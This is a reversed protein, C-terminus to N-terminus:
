KPVTIKSNKVIDSYWENLILNIKSQILANKTIPSKQKLANELEYNWLKACSSILMKVKVAAIQKRRMTEYEKATMQVSNLFAHYKRINFINNNEFEVSNRLNNRLEEDTVTIGYLKSQQYLIEDQVLSYIIRAKLEKLDEDSLQQNNAMQRFDTYAVLNFLKVPIKVGNVVVFTKFDNKSDFFYYGVGALSSGIFAVITVIFIMRMHKRLFNMVEKGSRWRNRKDDNFM